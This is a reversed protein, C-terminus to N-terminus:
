GNKIRELAQKRFTDASTDDPIQMAIEDVIQEVSCSREIAQEIILDAMPGIHKVALEVLSDRVRRKDSDSLSAGTKVTAQTPVVSGTTQGSAAASGSEILDALEAAPMLEQRNEGRVAVFNFRINQSQALAHVAEGIDKGRAISHTLRGEFFRLVVSRQADTVISLVGSDRQAVIQRIQDVLHQKAVLQTTM